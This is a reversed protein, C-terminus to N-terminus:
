QFYRKGAADGRQHDQVAQRLERANEECIERVNDVEKKINELYRAWIENMGLTFAATARLTQIVMQLVQGVAKLAEATDDFGSAVGLIQEYDMSIEQQRAM